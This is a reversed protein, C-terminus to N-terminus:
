QALEEMEVFKLPHCLAVYGAPEDNLKCKMKATAVEEDPYFYHIHNMFNEVRIFEIEIEKKLYFDGFWSLLEKGFMTETYTFLAEPRTELIGKGGLMRNTLIYVIRADIYILVGRDKYKFLGVFGFDNLDSTFLAYKEQRTVVNKMDFNVKLLSSIKDSVILALLRYFHSFSAMKDVTNDLM